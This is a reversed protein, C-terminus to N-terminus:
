AWRVLAIYLGAFIIPIALFFMTGVRENVFVAALLAVLVPTVASYLLQYHAVPMGTIAKLFLAFGILNIVGFAIMFMWQERGISKLSATGEYIFAVCTALLALVIMTIAIFTFPPVVGEVKKAIIALVAYLVVAVLAIGYFAIQPMGFNYRTYSSSSNAACRM